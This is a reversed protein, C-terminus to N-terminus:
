CKAYVNLMYMLFFDFIASIIPLIGYALILKKEDNIKM